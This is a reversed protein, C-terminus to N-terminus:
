LYLHVGFDQYNLERSKLFDALAEETWGYVYAREARRKLERSDAALRNEMVELISRMTKQQQQLHDCVRAFGWSLQCVIDFTAAEVTSRLTEVSTVQLGNLREAEAVFAIHADKIAAIAENGFEITLPANSTQFRQRYLSSALDRM